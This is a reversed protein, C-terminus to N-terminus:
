QKTFCEVINNQSTDEICLKGRADLFLWTRHTSWGLWGSGFNAPTPNDLGINAISRWRANPTLSVRNSEGIKTITLIPVTACSYNGWLDPLGCFADNAWRGVFTNWNYRWYTTSLNTFLNKIVLQGTPDLSLEVPVSLLWPLRIQIEVRLRDAVRVINPSAEYGGWPDLVLNGATDCSIDIAPVYGTLPATAWRGAFQACEIRLPYNDPRRQPELVATRATSVQPMLIATILIVALM